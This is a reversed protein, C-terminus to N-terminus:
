RPSSTAPAAVAGAPRIAGLRALRDLFAELARADEPAPPPGLVDLPRAPGGRALALLLQAAEGELRLAKGGAHLAAAAGAPVVQAGPALEIRTGVEIADIAGVESLGLAYGGPARRASRMAALRAPAAYDKLNNDQRHEPALHRELLPAVDADAPARGLARLDAVIRRHGAIAADVHVHQALDVHGFELRLRNTGAFVDLITDALRERPLWRTAYGIAETWYPRELGARIRALTDMSITFGHAAPERFIRSGPDVFLMPEIMFATTAPALAVADAIFDLDRLIADRDQGPLAFFFCLSLKLGLDACMRVTELITANDYAKGPSVAARVERSSSEPSLSVRCGALRTARALRELHDRSPAFYLENQVEIPLPDAALADLLRNARREGMGRLDGALFAVPYRRAAGRRLHDLVLDPDIGSPAPREFWDGYSSRSGGCFTCDEICGRLIPLVLADPASGPEFVTADLYDAPGAAPAAFANRRIAGADDRWVLNAVSARDFPRRRAAAALSVIASECEGRLVGDLGPALALAEEAFFSATLGGLVIAADPHLRRLLAVLDLAGPAHVAWHLSIGYARAEFAALRAEIAADSLPTGAAAAVSCLKALNLIRAEFGAARLRQAM